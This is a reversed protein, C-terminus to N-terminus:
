AISIPDDHIEPLERTIPKNIVFLFRNTNFLQRYESISLNGYYKSLTYFPDPAPKINKEYNFIKSYISCLLHYREFKTTSDISEKMLYAVACEPSCFCGYVHYNQDFVYKPIFIPPNEFGHHCWFCSSKSNLTQNHSFMRQLNKLKQHVLNSNPNSNANSNSNGDKKDCCRCSNCSSENTSIVANTTFTPKSISKSIPKQIQIEQSKMISISSTPNQNLLTSHMKNQNPQSFSYYDVPNTNGSDILDKEYCKLHVIINQKTEKASNNDEVELVIKGGKPKRGRKKPPAPNPTTVIVNEASQTVSKPRGRAKSTPM